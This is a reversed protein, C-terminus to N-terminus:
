LSNFRLNLIPKSEGSTRYDIFFKWEDYGWNEAGDVVVGNVLFIPTGAISRSCGYKWSARTNLDNNRDNLAVIFEKKSFAVSTGM